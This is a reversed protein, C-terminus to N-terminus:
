AVIAPVRQDPARWPASRRGATAFTALADDVEAAMARSLRTHLLRLDDMTWEFSSIAETADFVPLALATRTRAYSAVAEDTGAAIADALLEAHLLADTIGHATLPDKFYAADGVLAWGPGSCETFGGVLGAFGRLGETPASDRLADALVPDLRRLERHFAAGSDIGLLAGIRRAPVTAFVCTAGNTPIVGGAVDPGYLWRYGDV